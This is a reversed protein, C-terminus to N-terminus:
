HNFLFERSNLLAWFLDEVSEMRNASSAIIESWHKSEAEAPFRSFTRLYLNEVIEESSPELDLLQRVYGNIASVKADVTDSGIWMLSQRLSPLSASASGCLDTRDCRGLTDLLTSATVPDQIEVARTGTPKNTFRNAVGTAKALADAMQQATFPRPEQYAYLHGSFRNIENSRSSLQYLHSGTIERIMFNIDYNHDQFKRALSELLEPHSPPNAASLDDVPDVIGRAFFQSWLWNVFAKALLPNEKGTMWEALAPLPDTNASLEPQIGEFVQPSLIEGTIPHRVEGEPFFRVTTRATMQGPVSPAVPRVKAFFAAFRHAQTQTWVDFPHDHCQACRMRIGLLQRAAQQSAIIPDVNVLSYAAAATQMSEPDGRTTLLDKVITNWPVRNEVQQQLWLLYFAAANGQRSSTIQLLDGLKLSWFKPFDSDSLLTDVMKQRKIPSDDKLFRRIEIPEPLRGVLDLSLRRLFTADDTLPSPPIQLKKLHDSVLRDIQSDTSLVDFLTEPQNSGPFQVRITEILSGFRVVIHTEGPQLVQLRGASDVTAISDDLSNWNAWPTVERESENDYQYLLKLQIKSPRDSLIEIPSVRIKGRNNRNPLVGPAMLSVWRQLKKFDNSNPSLAQGGGHPIQGSAKLLFLSRPPDFFNLRRGLSDRVISHYDQEASYGFLSLKFGNQGDLRGHCGGTNCGHKTLIPLIDTGFDITESNLVTVSLHMESGEESLGQLQSSGEAIPQILGSRDVQVSHGSKLVWKWITSNDDEPGTIGPSNLDLVVSSNLIPDSLPPAVQGLQDDSDNQLNTGAEKAASIPHQPPPQSQRSCGFNAFVLSGIVIQLLRATWFLRM